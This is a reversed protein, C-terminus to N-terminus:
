ERCEESGSGRLRHYVGVACEDSPQTENFDRCWAVGGRHSIALIVSTSSNAHSFCRVGMITLHEDLAAIRLTDTRMPNPFTPQFGGRGRANLFTIRSRTGLETVRRSSGELHGFLFPVQKQLRGVLVHTLM